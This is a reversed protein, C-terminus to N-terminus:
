GPPWGLRRGGLLHLHLHFVSQGASEGQNVVVRYGPLGAARGLEAATALLRGLLPRNPPDGVPPDAPAAPDKAETAADLSALHRKPVILLHTPAQPSIDHFALVEDDEHVIRAPIERAVIRCFLCDSM